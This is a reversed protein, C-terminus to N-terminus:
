FEFDDNYYKQKEVAMMSELKRYKAFSDEYKRTGKFDMELLKERSFKFLTYDHLGRHLTIEKGNKLYPKCVGEDQLRKALIEYEPLGMNLYATYIPLRHGDGDIDGLNMTATTPCSAFKFFTPKEPYTLRLCAPYGDYADVVFKLPESSMVFAMRDENKM